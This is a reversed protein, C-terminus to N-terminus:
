PLNVSVEKIVPPAQLMDEAAIDSRKTEFTLLLKHNGKATKSLDLEIKNKMRFYISATAEGMAVKENTASLLEAKMSGIYPANGTREVDAVVTLKNDKLTTIVDHVNLGTSVNGKRYFVPFIQDFKFNIQTTVVDTPAKGIDPTKQASTVKVRSFFFADKVSSKTRVQLRVTQQQKPNLLFSRPYARVMPNLSYIGASVTDSYNMRGNGVSDADPYGFVFDIGVEQPDSSNNSIFMTGVGSKSNIFLISPAVTVQTFLMETGFFIVSVLFFFKRLCVSPLYKMRINKEMNYSKYLIRLSYLLEGVGDFIVVPLGFLL